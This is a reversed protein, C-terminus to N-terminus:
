AGAKPGFLFVYALVGVVGIGLILTWNVGAAGTTTTPQTNPASWESTVDPTATSTATTKKTVTANPSNIVYSPGTYAYSQAPAYTQVPAYNEYPQHINRAGEVTEGKKTGGVSFLEFFSAM